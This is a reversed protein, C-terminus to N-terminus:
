GVRRINSFPRSIIKPPTVLASRSGGNITAASGSTARRVPRGACFSFCHNSMLLLSYLFIYIVQKWVPDYSNSSPLIISPSIVSASPTWAFCLYTIFIDTPVPRFILFPDATM